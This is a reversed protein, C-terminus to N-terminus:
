AGSAAPLRPFLLSPVTRLDLLDITVAMDADVGTRVHGAHPPNSAADRVIDEAAVSVVDLADSVCVALARAHQLLVLTETEGASGYGALPALALATWFRGRYRFIGVVAEPAGPLAAVRPRPIVGSIDSLPLGVHCPAGNALALRCHLYARVDTSTAGGDGRALRVTREDLLRLARAATEGTM